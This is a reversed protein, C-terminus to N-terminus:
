LSIYLQISWYLLFLVPLISHSLPSNDPFNISQFVTSLAIFISVSMLVSYFTTPMNPQNIDFVYVAVDGGRSPLRVPVLLLRCFFSSLLLFRCLASAAWFAAYYM